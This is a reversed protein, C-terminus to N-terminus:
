RLNFPYSVTFNPRSFRPVAIGLEAREVCQLVTDPVPGTVIASTARGNGGDFTVRVVISGTSGAACARVAPRVSTMATAVDSRSPLEPLDALGEMPWLAAVAVAVVMATVLPLPDRKQVNRTSRM